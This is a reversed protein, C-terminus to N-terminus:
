WMSTIDHSCIDRRRSLVAAVIAIPNGADPEIRTAMAEVNNVAVPVTAIIVATWFLLERGVAIGVDLDVNQLLMNLYLGEVEKAASNQTPHTYAASLRCTNQTATRTRSRANLYEVVSPRPACLRAACRLREISRVQIQGVVPVERSQRSDAIKYATCYM